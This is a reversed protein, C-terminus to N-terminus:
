MACLYQFDISEESVLSLGEEKDTDLFIDKKLGLHPPEFNM